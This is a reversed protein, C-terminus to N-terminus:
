DLSKVRINRFYIDSAGKEPHFVRFGAQLCINGARNFQPLDAHSAKVGNIYMAIQDEWAIIEATNWNEYSILNSWARAHTALSGTSYPHAFGNHDYINCEVSNQINVEADNPDRRIFIGSNDEKIIKFDLILHFNRYSGDSVLFGGTEGSYGHLIGDTVDWSSAGVNTWGDLSKGDFIYTFSRDIHRDFHARIDPGLQREPLRTLTLDQFKLSGQAPIKFGMKGGMSRRDHTQAAVEDNIMVRIYDGDVTLAFDFWGATDFKPFWTGRATNIISGTPNQQDAHHTLSLAYGMELHQRYPQRFLVAGKTNEDLYLSGRLVFNDHDYRSWLIANGEGAMMIVEEDDFSINLDGVVEWGDLSENDFLEISQATVYFISLQFM